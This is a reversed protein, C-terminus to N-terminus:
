EIKMHYLKIFMLDKMLLRVHHPVKLMHSSYFYYGIMSYRTVCTSAQGGTISVAICWSSRLAIFMYHQKCSTQMCLFEDSVAFTVHTAVYNQIKASYHSPLLLVSELFQKTYIDLTKDEKLHKTIM